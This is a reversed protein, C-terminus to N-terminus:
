LYMIKITFKMADNKLHYNHGTLKHRQDLVSETQYFILLLNVSILFINRM